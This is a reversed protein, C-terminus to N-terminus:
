PQEKNKKSPRWNKVSKEVRWHKVGVTMNYM